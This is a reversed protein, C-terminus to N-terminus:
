LVTIALHNHKCCQLLMIVTCYCCSTQTLLVTVANHDHKCYLLLTINVAYCYSCLQLCYLSHMWKNVLFIWSKTTFCHLKLTLYCQVIFSVYIHYHKYMNVKERKAFHPHVFRKYLHSSGKTVPLLLWIVFLIKVEYYFPLRCVCCLFVRVCLLLLVSWIVNILKENFVDTLPWSFTYCIKM